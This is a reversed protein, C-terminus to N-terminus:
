PGRQSPDFLEPLKPKGYVSGVYNKLITEVTNGTIDAIRGVPVGAEIANSTFARRAYRFPFYDIGLKALLPKWCRERFNHDDIPKGKPSTFVFDKPTPTFRSRREQLLKQMRDSLQYAVANGTKTEALVGRSYSQSIVVWGCDDSIHKWQLGAVEGPRRGNSFEFDIFEAWEPCHQYAGAIIASCTQASAAQKRQKQVKVKVGKWPNKAVYERDVAWEWCARLLSLRQRVTIPSMRKLLWDRFDLARSEGIANASKSQFFQALYGQTASYKELSRKKALNRRRHETYKEFLEVVTLKQKPQLRYKELSEDYHGSYGQYELDLDRQLGCRELFADALRWNAPTDEMGLSMSRRRGTPETWRVKLWGKDASCIVEGRRAKRGM